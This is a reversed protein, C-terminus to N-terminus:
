AWFGIATRIECDFYQQKEIDFGENRLVYAAPMMFSLQKM